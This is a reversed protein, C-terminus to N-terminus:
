EDVAEQDQRGKDTMSQNLYIGFPGSVREHFPAGLSRLAMWRTFLWCASEIIMFHSAAPEGMEVPEIPEDLALEIAAHFFLSLM